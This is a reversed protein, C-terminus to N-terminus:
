CQYGCPHINWCIRCRYFGAALWASYNGTKAPPRPSDFQGSIYSPALQKKLKAIEAYALSLRKEYDAKMHDYQERMENAFDLYDGEHRIM